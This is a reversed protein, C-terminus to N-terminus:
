RVGLGLQMRHIGNRVTHNVDNILYQGKMGTVPEYIEMIRGARVRDNGIMELSNEEFIKGLEYLINRAINKAKAKDKTDVNRVEQLVGYQAMLRSNQAEAIVKDNSILKISNKMNEITRRRSPNSISNSVDYEQINEALKFVPKIVLDQQRQIYLRGRRMEMRYKIGREKEALDIIDKIIESVTKASYIKDIITSMPAIYGVPVNFDKLITEIAKKASIKNFQYTDSSKNLYFAYDFCTYGVSGRGNKQQSVVVGNFIEDEHRLSILNGLDISSSPFYRDDNLAINFNLQEGLEHISSRWQIDRVLPTINTEINSSLNFLQHM